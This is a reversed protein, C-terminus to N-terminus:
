KADGKRIADKLAKPFVCRVTRWPPIAVRQGTVVNRGPRAKRKVPKFTGFERIEITRGDLLMESIFILLCDVVRLCNRQGKGSAKACAQVIDFKTTNM